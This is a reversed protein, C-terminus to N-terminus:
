RVVRVRDALEVVREGSATQVVLGGGSGLRLAEGEVEGGDELTFRYRTGPVGARAEWERAISAPSRLADLHTECARLIEGLLEERAHEGLVRVDDLFIPPPVIEDLDPRNQPRYVNVGIGCGLTARDAVIRSVCLIGCLKRGNLLLDNPWQLTPELNWRTLADAVRLGAWFTVAWAAGADVAYPLIATFLLGSRPAAVWTRGRRGKGGSQEDAVIVLGASSAEGLRRQAEDNTSRIVRHHEILRFHRLGSTAINAAFADANGM